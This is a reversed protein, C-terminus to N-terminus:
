TLIVGPAVFDTFSPTSTGYIPDKFQIPIDGLKPNNECDALLGQAFDRYTLQLDRNLLIGIQQNSMDLWVRIESQDLTEDDAERGQQNNFNSFTGM